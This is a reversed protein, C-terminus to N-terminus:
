LEGLSIDPFKEHVTDITEVLINYSIISKSLIIASKEEPHQQKLQQMLNSLGAFNYSGKDDLKFIGLLTENNVVDIEGEKISVVLRFKHAVSNKNGERSIKSESPLTLEIAAIRGFVATVLLFTILTVMIDVFGTIQLDKEEHLRHKRSSPRPLM